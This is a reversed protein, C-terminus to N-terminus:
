TILRRIKVEISAYSANAGGRFFGTFVYRLQLLGCFPPFSRWLEFQGVLAGPLQRSGVPSHGAWTPPLARRTALTADHSTVVMAFRVCCNYLTPSQAAFATIDCLGLSKTYGFAVHAAGNHSPREASTSSGMVCLPIVDSGPLDWTRGAAAFRRPGCRSPSSGFGIICSCPFDSEAMTAAFGVFLAPRGAASGTSRLASASPFALWYLVCRACYRSLTDCASSRM